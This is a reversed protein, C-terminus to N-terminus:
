FPPEEESQAPAASEQQAPASGRSSNGDDRKARFTPAISDAVMETASQKVGDKEWESTHIRGTAIVRQGRQFHEAVHEALEGFATIRLWLTKDNEWEGAANKKSSNAAIRVNAVAIGSPAFRLEPDAVLNGEVTLTPLM